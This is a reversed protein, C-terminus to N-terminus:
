FGRNKNKNKQSYNKHSDEIGTLFLPSAVPHVSTHYIDYLFTHM